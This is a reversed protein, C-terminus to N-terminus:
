QFNLNDNGDDEFEDGVPRNRKGDATNGLKGTNLNPGIGKKGFIHSRQM